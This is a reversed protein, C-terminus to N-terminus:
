FLGDVAEYNQIIIEFNIDLLKYDRGIKWRFYDDYM